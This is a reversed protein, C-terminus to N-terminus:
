NDSLVWDDEPVLGRSEETLVIYYANAFRAIDFEGKLQRSLYKLIRKKGDLEGRYYEYDLCTGRYVSNDGYLVGSETQYYMSLNMDTNDRYFYNRKEDVVDLHSGSYVCPKEQWYHHSYGINDFRHCIIDGIKFPLPFRFYMGSFSYYLLNADEDNDERVVDINKIEGNALIEIDIIKHTDFYEKRFHVSIFDDKEGKTAYEKENEEMIRLSPSFMKETDKAEFILSYGEDNLAKEADRFSKYIKSSSFDYKWPCDGFDEDYRYVADSDDAFFQEIYKNEMDMYRHLLDHLSKWNRCNLREPVDCDPNTDIIEQWAARKEKLTISECQWVLWAAELPTFKYGINKLHERVDRSNIFRLIDM